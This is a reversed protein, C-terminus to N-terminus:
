EIIVLELPSTPRLPILQGLGRSVYLKGRSGLDYLGRVYISNSFVVFNGVVVGGHTHGALMLGSNNVNPAVNPDHALVIDVNNIPPYRRGDRWDIGALRLESLKVVEDILPQFGCEHKLIGVLKPALNSWYDHNGLVAYKKKADMNSLYERVPELSLTFEDVIDGGHLIIDPSESSIIRLVNEEVQGFFHIHTDTLFAIKLGLNLSLKTVDLRMSKVWSLISLSGFVGGTLLLFSRRSIKM